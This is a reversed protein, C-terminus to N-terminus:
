LSEAEYVIYRDSSLDIDNIKIDQFGALQLLYQFEYRYYWTIKMKEHETEVLKNNEFKEYISKRTFYQEYKNARDTSSIAIYTNENCDERRIQQQMEGSEYVAEWPIYNAILIRGKPLLHKKFNKLVLLAKDRKILQFSGIAVFISVFQKPLALREIDQDYLKTKLGFSEIRQRCSGLMCSSNDVGEINIGQKLLPILLRGSGCMAELVPGQVNKLHNFYYDVETQPAEPKSINYFETCLKKYSLPLM